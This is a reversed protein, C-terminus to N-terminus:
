SAITNTVGRGLSSNRYPNSAPNVAPVTAGRGYAAGAVSGIAGLGSGILNGTMQNSAATQAIDNNINATEAGMVNGARNQEITNLGNYYNGQDTRNNGLVTNTAGTNLGLGTGIMGNNADYATGVAGLRASLQQQTIAQNGQGIQNAVNAANGIFAADAGGRQLGGTAALQEKLAQVSGQNAQMVRQQLSNALSSGLADSANSVDGVYKNGLAATDAKAGAVQGAIDAQYPANYGSLKSLLLNANKQQTDASQNATNTLSSYDM